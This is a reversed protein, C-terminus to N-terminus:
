KKSRHNARMAFIKFLVKPYIIGISFIRALISKPNQEISKKVFYKFADTNQEVLAYAYAIELMRKSYLLKIQQEHEQFNILSYEFARVVGEDIARNLKRKGQGFTIGVDIRYSGLIENIHYIYGYKAQFVHIEVDFVTEGMLNILDNIQPSDARFFKSSHAFFPLTGLLTLIDHKGEHFEFIKSTAIKSNKDIFDCNHTCIVCDLNKELIDFQKQLKGPLALDDGDMHAIYKGRALSYVKKINEFPGVNKEYLIPVIINPYKDSYEQVIKRTNDTSCDEGVIIEFKFNTKQTVISELCEAIYNEQNYTVICVSVSIFESSM